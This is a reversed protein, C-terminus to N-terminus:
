AAPDGATRDLREASQCQGGCGLQSLQLDEGNQGFPVAYTTGGLLVNGPSAFSPSPSGGYATFNDNYLDPYTLARM